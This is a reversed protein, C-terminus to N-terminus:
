PDLSLGTAPRISFATGQDGYIPVWTFEAITNYPNIITINSRYCLEPQLGPIQNIVLHKKNLKLSQLKSEALIIIHHRYTYNIRYSISRQFNQVCDSEFIIPFVGKSQAKIIQGIPSTRRLENCDNQSLYIVDNSTKAM